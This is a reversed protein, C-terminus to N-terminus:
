IIMEIQYFLGHINIIVLLYKLKIIQNLIDQNNNGNHVINNINEKLQEKQDKNIGEEIIINKNEM